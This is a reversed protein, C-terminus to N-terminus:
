TLKQYIKNAPYDPSDKGFLVDAVKLFDKDNAFWVNKVYQDKVEKLYMEKIKQKEAVENKDDFYGSEKLTNLL